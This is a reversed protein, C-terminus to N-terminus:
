SPYPCQLCHVREELSFVHPDHTQLVDALVVYRLATGNGRKVIHVEFKACALEDRQHPAASASFRRQQIQGARHIERRRARYPQVAHVSRRKRSAASSAAAARFLRTRKESDKLQQRRKGHNLVDLQRQHQGPLGLRSRHRSFFQRQTSISDSRRGCATDAKRRASAALPSRGRATGVPRRNQQRVFRGAVQIGGGAFHDRGTAARRRHVSCWSGSPSECGPPPRCPPCSRASCRRVPASNLPVGAASSRDEITQNEPRQPPLRHSGRERHQRDRQAHRRHQRDFQRAIRRRARETRRHLRQGTAGIEFDRRRAPNRGFHQRAQGRSGYGKFSCGRM